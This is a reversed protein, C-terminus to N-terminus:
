NLLKFSNIGEFINKILCRNKLCKYDDFNVKASRNGHFGRTYQRQRARLSPEHGQQPRCHM